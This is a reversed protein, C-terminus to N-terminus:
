RAGSASAGPSASRPPGRDARSVRRTRRDYRREQKHTLVVADEEVHERGSLSLDHALAAPAAAVALASAAIATALARTIGMHSRARGVPASRGRGDGVSERTPARTM